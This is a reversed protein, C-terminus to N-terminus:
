EKVKMYHQSKNVKGELQTVWIYSFGKEVCFDYTADMKCITEEFELRYSPRIEVVAIHGSSFTVLFDPVTYRKGGSENLYSIRFPEYKYSKVFENEELQQLYLQEWSSRYIFDRKMKKSFFRGLVKGYGSSLRDATAASQLTKSDESHSHGFFSNKEGCTEGRKAKCICCICDEKHGKEQLSKGKQWLSLKKRHELTKEKGKLSNSVREGFGEPKPKGILVLGVKKGILDRVEKSHTKGRFPPIHVRGCKSCGCPDYSHGKV